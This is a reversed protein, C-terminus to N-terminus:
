TLQARGAVREGCGDGCRGVQLLLRKSEARASAGPEWGQARAPAPPSGPPQPSCPPGPELAECCVLSVTCGMRGPARRAPVPAPPPSAPAWLAPGGGLGPRRPRRSPPPLAGLRDGGPAEEPPVALFRPTHPGPLPRHCPRGSAALSLPLGPPPPRPSPLRRPGPSGPQPDASDPLALFLGVVRPFLCSASLPFYHPLSPSAPVGPVSILSPTKAGPLGVGPSPSAPLGRTAGCASGPAHWPKNVHAEQLKHPQLGKPYSNRQELHGMSARPAGWGLFGLHLRHFTSLKLSASCLWPPLAM